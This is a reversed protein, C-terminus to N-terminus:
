LFQCDQTRRIGHSLRIQRLHPSMASINRLSSLAIAKDILLTLPHEYITVEIRLTTATFDQLSGLAGSMTM